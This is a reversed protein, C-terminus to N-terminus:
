INASRGHKFGHVFATRYHFGVLDIVEDPIIGGIDYNHQQEIVKRVYSWHAEAMEEVQEKTLDTQNCKRKFEYGHPNVGKPVEITDGPNYGGFPPHGTLEEIKGVKIEDEMGGSM